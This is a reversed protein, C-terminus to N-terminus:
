RNAGSARRIFHGASIGRLLAHRYHAFVEPDRWDSPNENLIRRLRDIGVMRAAEEHDAIADLQDHLWDRHAAVQEFWDASQLGKRRETLAEPAIWGVAAAKILAREVGSKRFMALPVSAVYDMLDRDTSPDRIDIGWRGWTGKHMSGRDARAVSRMLIDRYTPELVIDAFPEDGPFYAWSKGAQGPRFRRKLSDRAMRAFARAVGIPAHLEGLINKALQGWDDQAMPDSFIHEGGYSLALNGLTAPMLVRLGRAQAAENIQESWGLNCINTTPAQWYEFVTEIASTAWDPGPRVVVHEVNSHLRATAAALPTEDEIRTENHAAFGERPGATFAIVRGRDRLVSAAAGTVAGSDLGGSLHTAVDLEGRLRRSIAREVQERLGEAYDDFSGGRKRLEPPFWYREQKLGNSDLYGLHGPLVRGIGDWFSAADFMGGQRIANTIFVTDARRPVTEIAHLARPMSALAVVGDRAHFFLPACGAPDRAVIFRRDTRDWIAIAFDGRLRDFSAVGWAEFAHAVIGADSLRSAASGLSLAAILDSRNDIRCDAVLTYRGGALGIPQRDFRDEPTRHAYVVGMAAADLDARSEGDAGYIRLGALMRRCLNSLSGQGAVAAISTM